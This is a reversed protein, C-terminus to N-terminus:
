KSNGSELVITPSGLFMNTGSGPPNCEFVPQKQEHGNTAKVFADQVSTKLYPTQLKEIIGQNDLYLARGTIEFSWRHAFPDFPTGQESHKCMACASTFSTKLATSSDLIDEKFGGSHCQAMMVILEAFVPLEKLKSAFESAYYNVITGTVPPYMCLSARSVTNQSDPGDGGNNTHIFLMDEKKLISKLNEFIGNLAGTTGACNVKLRYPTNDGPWTDSTPSTYPTSYHPITTDKFYRGDYNLVFINQPSFDYLDILIRYLYELDNVHFYESMGSFLVAYREGSHEPFPPDIVNAPMLSEPLVIKGPPTSQQLLSTYSNSPDTYFPPYRDPIERIFMGTEANYLFYRCPHTWNYFPMDDVFVVITDQDAKVQQSGTRITDGAKFPNKSINMNSTTNNEIQMQKKIKKLIIDKVGM